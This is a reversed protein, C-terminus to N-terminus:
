GGSSQVVTRRSGDRLRATAKFPEGPFSGDYVALFVHTRRDPVVTRIDRSTTITVERVDATTRGQLVTRDDLRRLEGTGAPDADPVSSALVNLRLPHAGSPARRDDCDLEQVILNPRAIGLHPEVFALRDGVLHGPSSFCIGGRTSPATLIGWAAGGAPDPVRAAIRIASTVASGAERLRRRIADGRRDHPLGRYRGEVPFAFRQTAGSATHLTGAFRVQEM